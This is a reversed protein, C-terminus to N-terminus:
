AVANAEGMLQRLQRLQPKFRNHKIEPQTLLLGVCYKSFGTPRVGLARM